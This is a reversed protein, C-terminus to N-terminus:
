RVGYMQASTDLCSVLAYTINHHSFKKLSIDKSLWVAGLIYKKM